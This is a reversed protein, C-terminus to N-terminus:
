TYIICVNKISCVSPMEYHDKQDPWMMHLQSKRRLSHHPAAKVRRVFKKTHRYLDTTSQACQGCERSYSPNHVAKNLHVQSGLTTNQPNKIHVVKGLRLLLKLFGFGLLPLWLHYASLSKLLRTSEWYAATKRFIRNNRRQSISTLLLSSLAPGPPPPLSCFFFYFLPSFRCSSM